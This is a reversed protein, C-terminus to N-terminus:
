EASQIKIAFTNAAYSFWQAQQNWAIKQQASSKWFAIVFKFLAFHYKMQGDSNQKASQIYKLIQKFTGFDLM